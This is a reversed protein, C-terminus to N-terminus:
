LYSNRRCAHIKDGALGMSHPVTNQEKRLEIDFWVTADLDNKTACKSHGKLDPPAICTQVAYKM